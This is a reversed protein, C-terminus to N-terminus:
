ISLFIIGNFFNPQSYALNASIFCAVQPDWITESINKEALILGMWIETRSWLITTLKPWNNILGLKM